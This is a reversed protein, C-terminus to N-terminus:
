NRHKRHIATKAMTEKDMGEPSAIWGIPFTLPPLWSSGGGDGALFASGVALTTPLPASFGGSIYSNTIRSLGHGATKSHSVSWDPMGNLELQTTRPVNLKM